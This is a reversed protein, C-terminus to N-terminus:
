RTAMRRMTVASEPQGTRASLLAAQTLSLVAAVPTPGPDPRMPDLIRMVDDALSQVAAADVGEPATPAVRLARVRHEDRRKGDPGHWVFGSPEITLRGEESILTISLSWRAARDSAAINATRGDDMRLVAAIDGSLDRLTEPPSSAIGPSRAATTFAADVKATEGLLSQVTDMAGFLRMGLSGQMPHGYCTIHCTRPAGFADLVERAERFAAAQRPLGAFRIAEVVPPGGSVWGDNMDIASAPIPESALVKVGRQVATQFARGDAGAPGVGAAGPSVIWILDANAEILVRRLDDVPEVDLSGAVIASQGAVPSGASVLEHGAARVVARVLDTRGKEVWAIIRRPPITMRTLM